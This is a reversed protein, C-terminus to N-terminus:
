IKSTTTVDVKVEWPYARSDDESIQPFLQAAEMQSNSAHCPNYRPTLASYVTLKWLKNYSNELHELYTFEIDVSKQPLLNGIQIKMIDKKEAEAM